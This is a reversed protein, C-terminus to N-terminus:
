PMPLDDIEFPLTLQKSEVPIRWVLSRAVGPMPRGDSLNRDFILTMELSNPDEASTFNPGSSRLIPRGAADLLRLDPNYLMQQLRSFDEHRGRPASASLRIEWREGAQSISRVLFRYGNSECGKHPPVAALDPV